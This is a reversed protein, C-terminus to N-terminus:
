AIKVRKPTDVVGRRCLVNLDVVKSKRLINLAGNVDANFSYGGATKYLGRKVRRGTFLTESAGTEGYIPIGDADFFSARSTYSEEQVVFTIEYIQCLYELKGKIRGFPINVFKQNNVAGINSDRQFDSSYGLVLTAINSLLCFNIIYRCAKSIYDNVQNNRKRTIRKQTKTLGNVKNKDKLSQLAANQKNYWQNVSKLRKGDVIVSRGDSVVVTMLNDVGLDVAAACINGANTNPTERQSTEYTYQIEFYAADLKPIVKIEKVTKGRLVPPLPIEIPKHAKRYANSFPLILKNDNLRVFGIELTTYGEKPLYQPIKVKADYCGQKKLKILGFFSSFAENARKIIQQAMNSNLIRYNKNSKCLHYNKYYNLCLGTDFFHQRINHLAVNYMNKAIHSLEKLSEFEDHTLHKLEQKISLNYERSVCHHVSSINLLNSKM